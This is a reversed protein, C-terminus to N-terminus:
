HIVQLAVGRFPHDTAVAARVYPTVGAIQVGPAPFAAAQMMTGLNGGSKQTGLLQVQGATIEVNDLANLDGGIIVVDIGATHADAVRKALRRITRRAIGARLTWSAGAKKRAYAQWWSVIHTAIVRVRLGDITLDTETTKRTPTIGKRGQSLWRVAVRGVQSQARSATAPTSISIVNESGPRDGAHTWGAFTRRWIRRMRPYAIECGLVIWAGITTAFDALAETARIENAKSMRPNSRINGLAITLVTTTKEPM